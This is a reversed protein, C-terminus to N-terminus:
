GLEMPICVMKLMGHYVNSVGREQAHQNSLGLTQLLAFALILYTQGQPDNIKCAQLSPRQYTLIEYPSCIVHDCVYERIIEERATALVQAVYHTAPKTRVFLAGCARMVRILVSPKDDEQWTAEHVIPLHPIFASFFLYM